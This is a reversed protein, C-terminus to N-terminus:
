KSQTLSSNTFFENQHPERIIEDSFQKFNLPMFHFDFLSQTYIECLSFYSVNKHDIARKSIIWNIM